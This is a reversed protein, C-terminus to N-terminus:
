AFIFVLFNGFHVLVIITHKNAEIVEITFLPIDIPTFLVNHGKALKWHTLCRVKASSVVVM